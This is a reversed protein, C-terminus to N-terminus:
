QFSFPVIIPKNIHARQFNTETTLLQILQIFIFTPYVKEMDLWMLRIIRSVLDFHIVWCLNKKQIRICQSTNENPVVNYWSWQDTIVQLSQSQTRLVKIVCSNTDVSIFLLLIADNEQRNILRYRKEISTRNNHVGNNISRINNIYHFLHRNINM